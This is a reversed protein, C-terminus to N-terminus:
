RWSGCTTMRHRHRWGGIQHPDQGLTSSKQNLFIELVPNLMEQVMRSREDVIGRQTPMEPLSRQVLSPMGQPLLPSSTRHYMEDMLSLQKESFLPTPALAKPISQPPQLVDSPNMEGEEKGRAPTMFQQEDAVTGGKVPVLEQGVLAM